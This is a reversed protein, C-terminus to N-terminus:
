SVAAVAAAAPQFVVGGPARIERLCRLDVAM